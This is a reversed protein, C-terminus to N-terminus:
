PKAFVSDNLKGEAKLEHFEADVYLKGDRKITIKMPVKVGDSGRHDAYFVEQKVEQGGQEEAKVRYEAKILLGTDKAFFLAVDRHDKHAVKVGVAPQKEVETAGLATLAYAKDKLLPLLTGVSSAHLGEKQEAVQEKSMERAIGGETIWGKDGNLVITMFGEIEMRFQHPLQVAYSGTYPLGAGMGYYTGKEKWTMAQYKALKEAGGGAKIAKAIIARADTKDDARLLGLSGVLFLCAVAGCHM